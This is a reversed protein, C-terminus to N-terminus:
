GAPEANKKTREIYPSKADVLRNAQEATIVRFDIEGFERDFFVLPADKKLKFGSGLGEPLNTKDAM